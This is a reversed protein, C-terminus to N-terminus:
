KGSGFYIDYRYANASGNYQSYRIIWYRMVNGGETSVFEFNTFEIEEDKIKSLNFIRGNWYAKYNYTTSDFIDELNIDSIMDLGFSVPYENDSEIYEEDQAITAFVILIDGPESLAQSVAQKFKADTTVVSDFSQIITYYNGTTEFLIMNNPSNHPSSMIIFPYVSFDINGLNDITAGYYWYGSGIIQKECIYESGNLSVKIINTDICRNYNLSIPQSSTNVLIDTDIITIFGNNYNCGIVYQVAKDFEESIEVNLKTYEIKLSHDGETNTTLLIQNNESIYLNFPYDNWTFTNLNGDYISGYEYGHNEAGEMHKTLEYEIGDFTVKIVDPLEFSNLDAIEITAEYINDVWQTAETTVIDNFLVCEEESYSYGLDVNNNSGIDLQNLMSTLVAKNTNGPTEMVYEIIDKKTM